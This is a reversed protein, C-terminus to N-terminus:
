WIKRLIVKITILSKVGFVTINVQLLYNESLVKPLDTFEKLFNLVAPIIWETLNELTEIQEPLLKNKM